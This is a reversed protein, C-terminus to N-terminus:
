SYWLFWRDAVLFLGVASLLVRRMLVDAWPASYKM